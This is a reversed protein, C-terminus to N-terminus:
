YNTELIKERKKEIELKRYSTTILIYQNNNKEMDIDIM